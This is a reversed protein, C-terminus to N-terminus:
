HKDQAINGNIEYRKRELQRVTEIVDSAYFVEQRTYATGYERNIIQAKHESAIWNWGAFAYSVAGVGAGIAILLGFFGATFNNFNYGNSAHWFLAWSIFTAVVISILILIM